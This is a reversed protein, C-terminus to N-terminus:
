IRLLSFFYQKWIQCFSKQSKGASRSPRKFGHNCSTVSTTCAWGLTTSSRVKQVGNFNSTICVVVYYLMNLRSSAESCMLLWACRHLLARAWRKIANSQHPWPLIVKCVLCSSQNGFVDGLLASLMKREFARKLMILCWQNLSRLPIVANGGTHKTHSPTVGVKWLGRPWTTATSSSRTYSIGSGCVFLTKWRCAPSSRRRRSELWFITPLSYTTAM